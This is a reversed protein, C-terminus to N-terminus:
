LFRSHVLLQDQDVQLLDWRLFITHLLLPLILALVQIRYPSKENDSILTTLKGAM